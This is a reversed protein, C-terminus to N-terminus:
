SGVGVVQVLVFLVVLIGLLLASVVGIRRLDRTVYAYEDAYRVAMTGGRRGPRAETTAPRGRDRPRRSGATAAREEEVIRAELEAARAEDAPTLGTDPATAPAAATSPAATAPRAARRLPQRQGPRVSGRTRKAM